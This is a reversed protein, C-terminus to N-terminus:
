SVVVNVKRESNDLMTFIWEETHEMVNSQAKACAQLLMGVNAIDKMDASASVDVFETYYNSSTKPKDFVTTGTWETDLSTFKTGWVFPSDAGLSPMKADGVVDVDATPTTQIADNGSTKSMLANGTM